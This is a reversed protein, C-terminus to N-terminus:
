ITTKAGVGGMLDQLATTRSTAKKYAAYEEATLPKMERGNMIFPKQEGPGMFQVDWTKPDMPTSQNEASVPNALISKHNPQPKTDAPKEKPNKDGPAGLLEALGSGKPNGGGLSLGSLQEALERAKAEMAPTVNGDLGKLAAITDTYTKQYLKQREVDTKGTTKAQQSEVLLSKAKEEGFVEVLFKYKNELDTPAGNKLGAEFELLGKARTDAKADLGDKHAQTTIIRGLDEDSLKSLDENTLENGDLMKGSGKQTKAYKRDGEKETKAYAQADKTDQSSLAHRLRVLNEERVQLALQKADATRQRAGEGMSRAIGAGMGGGVALLGAGWSSGM